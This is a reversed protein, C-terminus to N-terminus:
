RSFFRMLEKYSMANIIREKELWGRRATGVGLRMFELHSTRHADTDISFKVKYSRAKLINEDNLDLRNPFSDIELAVNNREAAELVKEMDFDIPERENILRGTPHALISVLGTDLAKIIRKTMEEKGMRTNLHVSALVYDMEKLTSKELDLEGNKNIDVEGSKLIRIGELKSNLRDIEEFYKKFGADDMGGAQRESKSHDTMGIYERGLRKAAEAIEEITDAGDSYKSHVHLDGKIDELKVLNPLKGERALEIEGRNERMEPEIYSLGLKKYIFEEDEGEALNKGKKDFLGYENLKYGKKIAIERIKINHDKSGTFYQVAAGFSGKEVVRVDCSIGIKLWVTTKTPGKVVTREVEDIKEVFDMVKEGNGSIVLIDLDGVTEKMRRTSGCIIAKEVLRSTLLERVIKEAVPLATGLLIRGQGKELLELGKRIEEESKEGFGEIDRIKHEEVARRLGEIDKVGITKYLKYAKKAGMGQIKTLSPFDIPYKAKLREYKSMTGKEIYEKISNAITKGIGPLELFGEIGKKEYIEKVDQQLTGITMAAKRYALVEFRSVGEELELMDAIEELMEAIKANSM